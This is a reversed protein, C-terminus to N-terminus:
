IWEKMVELESSTKPNQSDLNIVVHELGNSLVLIKAPLEKQYASIQFFTSGSIPIEPAKCEVLIFPKGFDDVVLIDARKKRGNYEISVEAGMRGISIELVEVFYAILHQRVWEEPTLVLKKKRVTCFVSIVGDKRTLRLQTQPLNLPTM